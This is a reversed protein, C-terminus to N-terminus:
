RRYAVSSILSDSKRSKPPQNGNLLESKKRGGMLRWTPPQEHIFEEFKALRVGHLVLETRCPTWLQQESLAVRMSLHPRFAAPRLHNRGARGGMAGRYLVKPFPRCAEQFSGSRDNKQGWQGNNRLPTSQEPDKPVFVKAICAGATMPLKFKQSPPM